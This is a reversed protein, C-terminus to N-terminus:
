TLVDICKDVGIESVFYIFDLLTDNLTYCFVQPFATLCSGPKEYYM